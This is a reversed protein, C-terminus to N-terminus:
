PRQANRRTEPQISISRRKARKEVSTAKGRFSRCGSKAAPRAEDKFRQRKKTKSIAAHMWRWAPLRGRFLFSLAEDAAFSCFACAKEHALSDVFGLSADFPGRGRRNYDAPPSMHTASSCCCTAEAILKRGYFSRKRAKKGPFAMKCCISADMSLSSAPKRHCRM